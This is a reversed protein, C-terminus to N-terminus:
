PRHLPAGFSRSHLILERLDKREDDRATIWIDDESTAWMRFPVVPPAKVPIRSWDGAPTRRAMTVGGHPGGVALVTGDALTAMSQVEDALPVSETDWTHGDFRAFYPREHKDNDFEYGAAFVSGPIAHFGLVAVRWGKGHPLIDFAHEESATWREVATEGDGNAVCMSGLVFVERSDRTRVKQPSLRTKCYKDNGPELVPVNAKPDHAFAVLAHPAGDAHPDVLAIVGGRFLALDEVKDFPHLLAIREWRDVRWRVIEGSPGIGPGSATGAWVNPWRGALNFLGHRKEVFFKKGLDHSFDFRDRYGLALDWGLNVLTTEGAGFLEYYTNSEVVVHFTLPEPAVVRATAPRAPERAGACSACCVLLIAAARM